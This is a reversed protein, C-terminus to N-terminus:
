WISSTHIQHPAIIAEHYVRKIFVEELEEKAERANENHGETKYVDDLAITRQQLLFGNRYYFPVLRPNKNLWM